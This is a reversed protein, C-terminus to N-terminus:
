KYVCCTDRMHADVRKGDSEYTICSGKPIGGEDICQSESSTCAINDEYTKCEDLGRRYKSLQGTFILVLVILVILAIAAIVITNM